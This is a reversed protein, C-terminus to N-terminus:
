PLVHNKLNGCIIMEYDRSSFGYALPIRKHIHLWADRGRASVTLSEIAERTLNKERLAAMANRYVAENHDPQLRKLLVWSLLLFYDEFGDDQPVCEWLWELFSAFQLVCDSVGDNLEGVLVMYYYDSDIDTGWQQMRNCYLYLACLYLRPWRPLGAVIEYGCEYIAWEYDFYNADPFRREKLPLLLRDLGFNNPPSIGGAGALSAFDDGCIHSSLVDLFRAGGTIDKAFM